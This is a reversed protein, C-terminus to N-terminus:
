ENTWARVDGACDDTIRMCPAHEVSGLENQIWCTTRYLYTRAVKDWCILLVGRRTKQGREDVELRVKGGM